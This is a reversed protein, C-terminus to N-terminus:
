KEGGSKKFQELENNLQETDIRRKWCYVLRACIFTLLMFAAFILTVGLKRDFWMLLYSLGAYILSCGVAAALEFLGMHDSEDFNRLWFVQIYGMIYAALIMEAMFPISAQMSGGIIRYCSYFFLIAFFYLCAKFEIGIEASLYKKFRKM